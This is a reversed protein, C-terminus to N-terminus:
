VLLMVAHGAASWLTFREVMRSSTNTVALLTFTSRRPLRFSQIPLQDRDRCSRFWTMNCLGLECWVYCTQRVHSCVCRKERRNSPALSPFTNITPRQPRTRNPSGCVDSFAQPTSWRPERVAPWLSERSMSSHDDRLARCVTKAAAPTRVKHWRTSSQEHMADARVLHPASTRRASRM